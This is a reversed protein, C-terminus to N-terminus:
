RSVGITKKDFRANSGATIERSFVSVRDEPHGQKVFLTPRASACGESGRAVALTKRDLSQDPWDAIPLKGTRPATNGSVM